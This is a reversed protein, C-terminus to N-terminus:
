YYRSIQKKPTSDATHQQRPGDDSSVEDPSHAEELNEGDENAMDLVKDASDLQHFFVICQLTYLMQQTTILMTM